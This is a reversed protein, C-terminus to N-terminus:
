LDAMAESRRGIGRGGRVGEGRSSSSKSLNWFEGVLDTYSGIAREGMSSFKV